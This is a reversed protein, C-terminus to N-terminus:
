PKQIEENELKDMNKIQTNENNGNVTEGMERNTENNM